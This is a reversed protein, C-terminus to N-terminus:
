RCVRQVFAAAASAATALHQQHSHGSAVRPKFDHDGDSLWQLEITSAVTLGRVLTEEGLSDRTGQVILVPCRMGTLHSTRLKAPQKPPHFPFGLCVCGRIARKEIGAAFYEDAILSAVRGGMSKGGIMLPATPYKLRLAAIAGRYEQCLADMKPPPRRGHGQRRQAMYAFEFRAVTVSCAALAQAMQEMFASDMPAGAGHALMLIPSPNSGHVATIIFDIQPM